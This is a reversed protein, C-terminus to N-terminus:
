PKKTVLKYLEQNEPRLLSKLWHPNHLIQVRPHAVWQDSAGNCRANWVHCSVTFVKVIGLEFAVSIAEQDDAVDQNFVPWCWNVLKQVDPDHKRWGMMGGNYLLTSRHVGHKECLDGFHMAQKVPKGDFYETQGSIAGDEAMVFGHKEIAEFIWAPNHKVYQPKPWGPHLLETMGGVWFCDTDLYLSADFPTLMFNWCKRVFCNLKSDTTAPYKILFDADVQACQKILDGEVLVAAPFGQRHVLNLAVDLEAMIDLDLKSGFINFVVGRPVVPLKPLERNM